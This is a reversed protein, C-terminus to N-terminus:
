SLTTVSQTKTLRDLTLLTDPYGFLHKFQQQFLSICCGDCEYMLLLAQVDVFQKICEIIYLIYCNYGWWRLFIQIFCAIIAGFEVSSTLITSILDEVTDDYLDNM